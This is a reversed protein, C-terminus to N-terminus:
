MLTEQMFGADLRNAPKETSGFHSINIFASQSSTAEDILGRLRLTVYLAAARAQCNLSKEPNFAIDSFAKYNLIGEGLEQNQGLAKIYLWDYFATPPQLPWREGMFDFAVLNGSTRLREDTKAERSSLKYLDTFPGGYQFVKSGQYAAEVSISSGQSDKLMLNFASLRIGLEDPSKTSIDLVPKINRSAAAQHLSAISKQAQSTAFGPSWEFTVKIEKWLSQGTAQPLFIPRQAM